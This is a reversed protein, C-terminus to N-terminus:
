TNRARIRRSVRLPNWGRGIWLIGREVLAHRLAIRDVAAQGWHDLADDGLNLRERAPGQAARFSAHLADREAESVGQRATWAQDPSPGKAGWPRGLENVRLRAAELDDSTWAGPRGHRVAHYHAHTKLPGMGAEIAGNYRPTSPPSFLLLCRHREVLRKTADALFASGNDCKLVLPPQYRAFLAALLGCATIADEGAIPLCALVKGSALDRVAMAHTFCGDVPLSPLKTFDMAWVTGAREWRLREAYVRARRRTVRRYRRALDRLERRPVKPFVAKLTRVGTQPGQFRLFAIVENRRAVPSRVPKRGRAKLEPAEGKLLWHWLTRAKLCLTDAIERVTASSQRLVERAFRVM